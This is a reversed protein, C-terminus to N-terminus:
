TNTGLGYDCSCATLGSAGSAELTRLGGTVTDGGAGLEGATATTTLAAGASVGNAVQVPVLDFPGTLIWGYANEAVAVIAIGGKRPDSGSTTTDEETATMLGTTASQTLAVYSGVALGGTGAAKCYYAPGKNTKVYAGTANYKPAPPTDTTLNTATFDIGIGSGETAFVSGTTFAATSM